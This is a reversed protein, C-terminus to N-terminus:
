LTAAVEVSTAAPVADHADLQMARGLVVGVPLAAFCWAALILLVVMGPAERLATWGVGM